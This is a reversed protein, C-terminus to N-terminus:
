LRRLFESQIMVNGFLEQYRLAYAEMWQPVWLREAYERWELSRM